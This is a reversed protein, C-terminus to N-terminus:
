RRCLGGSRSAQWATARDRKSGRAAWVAIEGPAQGTTVLGSRLRRQVEGGGTDIFDVFIVGFAVEEESEADGVGENGEEGVLVVEQHVGVEGLDGADEGGLKVGGGWEHFLM